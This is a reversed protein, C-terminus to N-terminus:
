VEGHRDTHQLVKIVQVAYVLTCRGLDEGLQLSGPHVGSVCARPMAGSKM